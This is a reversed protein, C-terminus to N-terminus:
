YVIIDVGDFASYVTILNLIEGKWWTRKSGAPHHPFKDSEHSQKIMSILDGVFVKTYSVITIYAQVELM